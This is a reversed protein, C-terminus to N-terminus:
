INVKITQNKITSNLAKQIDDNLSKELKKDYIPLKKKVIDGVFNKQMEINTVTKGAAFAKSSVPKSSGSAKKANAGQVPTKRKKGTKLFAYYDNINIDLLTKSTFTKITYEVSNLLAGTRIWNNNKIEAIIAKTLDEGYDKVYRELMKANFNM